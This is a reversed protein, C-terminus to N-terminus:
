GACEHRTLDNSIIYSIVLYFWWKNPYSCPWPPLTLTTPASVNFHHKNLERRRCLYVGDNAGRKASVSITASQNAGIFPEKRNHVSKLRLADM